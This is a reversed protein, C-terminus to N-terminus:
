RVAAARRDSSRDSGRGITVGGPLLSTTRRAVLRGRSTRLARRPGPRATICMERPRRISRGEVIRRLRMLAHMCRIPGDSSPNAFLPRSRQRETCRRHDTEAAGTAIRANTNTAAITAGEAAKAASGVRGGAEVRRPGDRPRVPRRDAVVAADRDAIVKGQCERRDVARRGVAAPDRDPGGVGRDVDRTADVRADAPERHPQGVQGARGKPREPCRGVALQADGPGEQNVSSRLRFRAVSHTDGAPHSTGQPDPLFPSAAWARSGCRRPRSSRGVRRSRGVTRSNPDSPNPVSM